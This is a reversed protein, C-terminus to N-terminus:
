FPIDSMKIDDDDVDITPIENNPEPAPAQDAQYGKPKQGMQMEDAIIETMYRKVGQKDEYSRTEIRGEIFVEQGKVLYQGAIEALKGWMIINHFSVKEQKVGNADKWTQNTAVSFSTVSKGSQTKRIQLEKTIRGCIIAKNINM